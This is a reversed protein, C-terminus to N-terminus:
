AKEGGETSLNLIMNFVIWTITRVVEKPAETDSAVPEAATEAPPESAVAEAVVVEPTPQASCM